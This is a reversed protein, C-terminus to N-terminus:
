EWFDTLLFRTSEAADRGLSLNLKLEPVLSKVTEDGEGGGEVPMDFKWLDHRSEELIDVHTTAKILCLAGPPSSYSGALSELSM